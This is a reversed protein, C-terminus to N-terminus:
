KMQHGRHGSNDPNSSEKEPINQGNGTLGGMGYQQATRRQEPTLINGADVNVRITSLMLAAYLEYNARVNREVARMNVEDQDIMKQLELQAVQLKNRLDITEKTFALQRDKLKRVHDNSLGLERAYSLYVTLNNGWMMGMGMGNMGMDNMGMGMGGMGMMPCGPMLGNNMMMGGGRGMMGMGMSGMGMMGPVQAYSFVAIGLAMLILIIGVARRHIRM